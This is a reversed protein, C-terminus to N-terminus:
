ARVRANQGAQSIEPEVAEIVELVGFYHLRGGFFTNWVSPYLRMSRLEERVKLGFNGPFADWESPTLYRYLCPVGYPANSAWDMLSIRARALPGAIQHDKVIVCRKAVRVCERMLRDADSEHHLVDAIIVIDYMSDPFPMVKGGYEHVKIPENGRAVRELGEIVTHSPCRPHEWIARGLAGSGCGVDLVRDGERIQEAILSSLVKLREQYIPEHLSKMTSALAKRVISLGPAEM